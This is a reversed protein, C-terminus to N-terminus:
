RTDKCGWCKDELGYAVDETAGLQLHSVEHMIIAPLSNAKPGMYCCGGDFAIEDINIKKTLGLVGGWGTYGCWQGGVHYVITLGPDNLKRLIKASKKGACPCDESLKQRIRDMADLAEQERQKTPFNEFRVKGFPDAFRIPDNGVYAVLNSGAGRGAPDESAFRGLTPVYYRARYYYLGTELDWDRGTFAYGASINGQLPNGWPDYERTLAVIGSNNTVQAISGLHDALYYSVSGAQDRQAFPRDLGSQVYDLTQTGGIREEIINADDYVYSHTVGGATKQARKGKGDYTFSALVTAGQKVDMLRNEADWDYTKTGDGTLNGNPDYTFTQATGTVNVSFTSTRQNGSPDKAVVTLTGPVVPATGTFRNASDVSAPAGNVTVTAYEDVTGAVPLSTAASQTLLENRNNYQATTATSDQANISRNGAADYGYGYNKLLQQTAADKQIASTIQDALDYGYTYVKAPTAGLQQQWTAINGVADYTYDFQSLVTGNAVQQHKIEQLRQDGVNNFYSYTTVQNNPYTVSLPRGTNNLYTWNFTGVPSGLSTLRGLADYAPATAFSALGRSVVRGLEDYSYSITDNALPGDVTHLKNAGLGTSPYYTYATTGTGDTMSSLRNYVVDYVFSVSPTAITANTYTIQTLNNNLDYAYNTAQGMADTRTKLRGTTNEYGFSTFTGDARTEKVVRGQIDRTWSTVNGNPDTLSDLSGCTCWQQQTTRGLPDRITVVRRLADHFTETWRGLRDRHREADLRNYETQEYSADPYTVKVPRDMADYQTTVVYGESDTVTQVRGYDDYTYTTVAGATPGTVTTLYGDQDYAYTTTRNEMITARPPTVVTQVQGRANYTYQTTQGAADTVNLPQHATNYTNSALIDFGTGNNQEVKLLDISRGQICNQLKNPPQGQPTEDDAVDITGNNTSYTYWTERNASDVVRCPKGVQNLDTHTLQATIGDDLLRGSLSPKDISGAERGAQNPYSQWVESELPRKTMVPVGDNPGEHYDWIWYTAEAQSPDGAGLAMARKNWFYSVGNRPHSNEAYFTSDNPQQQMGVLSYPSLNWFEVRERAGLPDTAEIWSSYNTIEHGTDPDVVPASLASDSAFTTTGYPTTLSRILNGTAYNVSSSMGIVDTVTSVRGSTDYQLTAKRLFPDTVSTIKLPDASLDYSITTVQGVADSVAVLRLLHDYIFRLGNGQPDRSETLLVRRTVSFSSDPQGYVDVSGDPAHREYIFTGAPRKLYAAGKMSPGFIDGGMTASLVANYTYLEQGGGRVFLSLTQTPNSPADEVFSLWDLTWNPGLNVFYATSPLFIERQLYRVTFEVSPGVPPQYSLPTDVVTLSGLLTHFAYSPMGKCNCQQADVVRQAGGNVGSPAGKGRVTEGEVAKVRRWGEPLKGEAVLFYGTTEDNLAQRSVWIENGFTPDQVLYRGGQERVLAAFHGAKWHVVAPLVFPADGDRHAMQLKLGVTAALKQNETLTTGETTSLTADVKSQKEKTWGSARLLKGVALPGCRYASGPTTKLVGLSQRAAFAKSGTPGGVDRGQIEAFLAELEEVHGLRSHLELLEGLALNATAVGNVEQSGKALNWADQETALARTFYGTRRYVLGLNALLSARWPSAPRDALFTTFSSVDERSEVTVYALVAKALAQNEDLSTPGGVPVLTEPFVRASVFERDTPIASFQPTISPPTVAPLKRNSRGPVRAPAPAPPKAEQARAVAPLASLVQLAILATAAGRLCSQM